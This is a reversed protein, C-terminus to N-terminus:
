YQSVHTKKCVESSCLFWNREKLPINSEPMKIFIYTFMRSFEIFLSFYGYELYKLAKQPCSNM